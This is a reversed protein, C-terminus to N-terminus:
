WRRRPFARRPLSAGMSNSSTKLVCTVAAQFQFSWGDVLSPASRRKAPRGM